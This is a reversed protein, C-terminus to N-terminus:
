AFVRPACRTPWCGCRARAPGPRHRALGARRALRGRRVDRLRAAVHDPDGAAAFTDILRMPSWRRAPRRRRGRAVARRVREIEDPDAGSTSLVVPEVRHIYYALVSACPTERPGRMAISASWSTARWTSSPRTAAPRRARRARDAAWAWRVYGPSVIAGLQVGDAWAGAARLMRANVAGVYVPISPASTPCLRAARRRARRLGPRRRRREGRLLSRVVRIAEVMATLPRETRADAEGLARLTWLAAGVGLM